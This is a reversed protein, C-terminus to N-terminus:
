IKGRILVMMNQWLNDCSYSGQKFPIIIQIFVRKIIDTGIGNSHM